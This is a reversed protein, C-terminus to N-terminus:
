CFSKFSQMLFIRVPTNFNPTRRPRMAIGLAKLCIYFLMMHSITKEKTPFCIM